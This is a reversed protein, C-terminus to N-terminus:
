GCPIESKRVNIGFLDQSELFGEIDQISNMNKPGLIVERIAPGDLSIDKHPVIKGDRVRYKCGFHALDNEDLHLFFRWEKEESFGGDKLLFLDPMLGIAHVMLENYADLKNNHEQAPTGSSSFLAMIVEDSKKVAPFSNEKIWREAENFSVGACSQWDFSDLVQEESLRYLVLAYYNSIESFLKKQRGTFKANTKHGCLRKAQCLLGRKYDESILENNGQRIQPRIVVFGFDGGTKAETPKNHATLDAVIGEAFSYIDRFDICLFGNQLDEKFAEEVRQLRSAESLCEKLKWCFVNTITEEYPFPMDRICEATDKEADLWCDSVVQLTNPIKLIQNTDMRTFEHNGMKWHKSSKEERKELAQFCASGAGM